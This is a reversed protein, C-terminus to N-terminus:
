RITTYAVRVNPRNEATHVVVRMPQSWHRGENVQESRGEVTYTGPPVKIKWRGNTARTVYTRHDRDNVFRVTGSLKMFRLGTPVNAVFSGGVATKHTVLLSLGRSGTGLQRASSGAGGISFVLVIGVALAAVLTVASRLLWRRRQRRRAEEILAQAAAVVGDPQVGVVEERQVVIM